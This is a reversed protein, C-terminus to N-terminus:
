GLVPDSAHGAPSRPWAPARLLGAAGEIKEDAARAPGRVAIGGRVGRVVHPQGLDHWTEAIGYSFVFAHLACSTAGLSVAAALMTPGCLSSLEPELRPPESFPLEILIM